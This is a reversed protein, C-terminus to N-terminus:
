MIEKKEKEHDEPNERAHITGERIKNHQVRLDQTEENDGWGGMGDRERREEKKM